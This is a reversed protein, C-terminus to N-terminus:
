GRVPRLDAVDVAFLLFLLPFIIMKKRKQLEQPTLEKKEKEVVPKENNQNLNETSM